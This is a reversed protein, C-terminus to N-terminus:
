QESMEAYQPNGISSRLRTGLEAPTTFGDHRWAIRGSPDVLVITPLRLVALRRRADGADFVVPLDRTNWDYHLNRAATQNASNRAPVVLQMDLSPFQQHVSELLTVEGRSAHDEPDDSIFALLCWAHPQRCSSVQRGKGDRLSIEPLAPTAGPPDSTQQKGCTQQSHADQGSVRRYSEFSSFAKGGYEWRTPAHGCYAYSNGDFKLSANSRILIPSSSELTNAEFAGDGVFEATNVLAAAALPPDWVVRNGSIRLGQIKGGNWTTVFIAGQHHLLKQV